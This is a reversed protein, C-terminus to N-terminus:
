SRALPRIWAMLIFDQALRTIDTSLDEMLLLCESKDLGEAHQLAIPRGAHYQITNMGLTPTAAHLSLLRGAMSKSIGRMSPKAAM